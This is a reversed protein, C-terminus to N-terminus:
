NGWVESIVKFAQSKSLKYPNLTKEVKGQAQLDQITTIQKATAGEPTVTPLTPTTLTPLKREEIKAKNIEDVSAVTDIIGIGMMALARGVASTEANEMASTKNVMSGADDWRAQSYGTFYREPKAVDPIVTAKIIVRSADATSVLETRISGNACDDKFALLREKVEVYEKGKINTTKLKRTM